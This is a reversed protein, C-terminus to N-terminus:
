GWARGILLEFSGEQQAKRALAMAVFPDPTHNKKSVRTSEYVQARTLFEFKKKLYPINPFVYEGSEIATILSSYMQHIVKRAAFDLGVADVTINDEIMDGAMGTADYYAPGGYMRVRRNFHELMVPWAERQRMSYAAVQDPGDPNEIMTVIVTYDKEKAWDVGHYFTDGENPPIFIYDHGVKDELREGQFTLEITEPSFIMDGSEPRGLEVETNWDLETMESRKTDIRKQTTHGGVKEHTERYCWTYVGWGKEEAHEFVWALTGDAYQWTSTLFTLPEIDDRDLTQGFASKLVDVEMEDVEDGFLDTGHKSRTEKQSAALATAKGGNSLTITDAVISQIMEKPARKSDWWIGKTRSSDQFLYERMQKTQDKSGGLIYIEAGLLIMRTTALVGDM